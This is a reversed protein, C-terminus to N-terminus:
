SELEKVIYYGARKEKAKRKIIGRSQLQGLGAMIQGKGLKVENLIQDASKSTEPSKAGMKILADYVQRAFPSVSM